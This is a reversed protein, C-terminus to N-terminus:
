LDLVELEEGNEGATDLFKPVDQTKMFHAYEPFDGKVPVTETLVEAVKGPAVEFKWRRGMNGRSTKFPTFPLKEGTEKIVLNKDSKSILCHADFEIKVQSYGNPLEADIKTIAFAPYVISGNKILSM